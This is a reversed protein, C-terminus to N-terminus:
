DFLLWDSDTTSIKTKTNKFQPTFKPKQESNKLCIIYIVVESESTFIEREEFIDTYSNSKKNPFFSMIYDKAAKAFSHSRLTKIMGVTDYVEYWNLFQQEKEDEVFVSNSKLDLLNFWHSTGTTKRNLGIIVACERIWKQRTEVSEKLFVTQDIRNREFQEPFCVDLFHAPVIPIGNLRPDYNYVCYIFVKFWSLRVSLYTCKFVM